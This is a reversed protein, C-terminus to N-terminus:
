WFHFDDCLVIHQPEFNICKISRMIVVHQHIPIPTQKSNSILPSVSSKKPIDYWIEYQTYGNWVVSLNWPMVAVDYHAHDRRLYDVEGNNVWTNNLRLDFFVDFSRTAPGQSRHIGRVFSWSRPFHKWKIVDDHFIDEVLRTWLLINGTRWLTDDVTFLGYICSVIVFIDISQGKTPFISRNGHISWHQLIRRRTMVDYSISAQVFYRQTLSLFFYTCHM